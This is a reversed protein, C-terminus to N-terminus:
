PATEPEIGLRWLIFAFEFATERLVEFRGAADFHGAEMNTRFLLLNEDTKRDRLRAVWKASEWYQVRSDFLGATVLIDPYAQDRVQDYPSYSMMYAYQTPDRPDGWEDYESATLPITEDLMTTIADVFPVDAVIVRYLEPRANAIAGMLLGGASGGRAVLGDARSWGTKILFESADIYDNFTNKKALVRGQEYWNRGLEQGGRVHAIAFVFGRELLSLRNPNFEPDYSSGYAGYGALLLPHTADPRMGRAHLLTIPIQRGDRAPALLLETTYAGPDYGGAVKEVKLVRQVGSDMHEDILTDPTRLSGYGYRLLATEIEPNLDLSMTYAPEPAELLRSSGDRRDLIRIKSSADCREVLAIHDRFVLFDELLVEDRAPLVEEWAGLDMSRGLPARMLRSNLADLNTLVFVEDGIVEIGHEHGPRRALILRADADPADADIVRYEDSLSASAGIVIWRSDRSKELSVSFTIDTEEYVLVDDAPDDGLRHRLVRDPRLTVPDQTVYFLTRNDNAWAYDGATGDIRDALWEASTLDRVRLTYIERSLDDEGYALLRGDESITLGDVTFFEHERALVNVDLIVEDAADEAGHRRLYVPHEHDAEYRWLYYWDGLRYPFGSERKPIRAKLEHFLTERLSGARDLMAEAYANEARLYQLVEPDGREDDRLWYYEDIRTEGHATLERPRKAAVPPEPWDETM